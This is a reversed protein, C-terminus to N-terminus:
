ETAGGREVLFTEMRKLVKAFDPARNFWGHGKGPYLELESHVGLSLLKEHLAVSQGSPITTDAAGHLFLTPPTKRDARHFPSAQRYADPMDALSGGLLERLPRAAEGKEALAVLDLPPNHPICLNVHAPQDAYGPDCDAPNYDDVDATTALMAALHGGASGGAAAVREADINYDLAQARIWKVACRADQLCAPFRAENSFRYESCVAFFGHKSALYAAQRAFQKKSGGLWGGGHLFLIAPRPKTPTPESVYADLRLPREKAARGSEADRGPGRPEDSGDHPGAPPRSLSQKTVRYTVNELLTLGEPLCDLEAMENNEIKRWFEAAPIRKM